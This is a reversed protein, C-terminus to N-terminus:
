SQPDHRSKKHEFYRQTAAQSSSGRQQKPPLDRGLIPGTRIFDYGLSIYKAKLDPVSPSAHFVNLIFKDEERLPYNRITETVARPNQSLALFEYQYPVIHTNGYQTIGIPGAVEYSTKYAVRYSHNYSAIMAEVAWWDKIKVVFDMM